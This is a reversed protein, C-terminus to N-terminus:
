EVVALATRHLNRARAYYGLGSWLALVEDERAAALARLDPFRSVFREFYPEVTAVVTQQLMAESVLTRYPSPQRRWPLDRRNRDFWRLLRSAAGAGAGRAATMPVGGGRRGHRPRVLGRVEPADRRGALAVRVRHVRGAHDGGAPDQASLRV